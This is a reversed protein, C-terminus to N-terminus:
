ERCTLANDFSHLIRNGVLEMPVTMPTNV